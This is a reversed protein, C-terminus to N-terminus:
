NKFNMKTNASIWRFRNACLPLWVSSPRITVSLSHSRGILNALLIPRKGLDPSHKLTEFLSVANAIFDTVPQTNTIASNTIIGYGVTISPNFPKILLRDSFYPALFGHVISVGLGNAVMHCVNVTSQSELRLSRKIGTAVSFSM